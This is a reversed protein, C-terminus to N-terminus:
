KMVKQRKVLKEELSECTPRDFLKKYAKPKVGPMLIQHQSTPPPLPQSKSHLEELQNLCAKIMCSKVQNITWLSQLHAIVEKLSEHDIIWQKVHNEDYDCSFLNLPIESAMTYQPKCPHTEVDLLQKIIDPSEKGEGVLLLIAVICRIQHWLFAQGLITLVYMDYPSKYDGEHRNFPDISVSLIRRTFNTVNNKVDMKCLNRFDHEGILDQAAQRMAEIDLQSKPFFYKYERQKCDFRASFERPVAAWATVRIEPPLNKNLIKVYPIEEESLKPDQPPNYGEPTFLGVVNEDPLHLASRLDISVVQSFASVGKDTRGCRHYNSTERSEILKSKLLAEFLHHEITQTTDEQVCYGGYDWGFYLFKLAVHRRKYRSFDFPRPKKQRSKESEIIIAAKLDDDEVCSPGNNSDSIAKDHNIKRADRKIVNKLQVIHAELSRIKAILQDKTLSAIDLNKLIVSSPDKTDGGEIDAM